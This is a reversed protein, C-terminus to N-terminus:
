RLAPFLFSSIGNKGSSLKLNFGDCVHEECTVVPVYFLFTSKVQIVRTHIWIHIHQMLKLVEFSSVLAGCAGLALAFTNPLTRSAYFLFHFQVMTLLLAFSSVLPGLWTRVARLFGILSLCVICGLVSRVPPSSLPSDMCNVCRVECRM